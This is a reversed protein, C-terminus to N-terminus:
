KTWYNWESLGHDASAVYKPGLALDVTPLKTQPRGAGDANVLWSHQTQQTQV